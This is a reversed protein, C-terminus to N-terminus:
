QAINYSFFLWRGEDFEVAMASSKNCCISINSLSVSFVDDLQFRTIEVIPRPEVNRVVLATSACTM